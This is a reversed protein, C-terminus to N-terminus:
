KEYEKVYNLIKVADSNHKTPYLHGDKDIMMDPAIELVKSFYYEAEKEREPSVKMCSFCIPSGNPGYPRLDNEKDCYYCKM